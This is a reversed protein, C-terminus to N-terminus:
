HHVSIFFATPDIYYWKIYWPCRLKTDYYKIIHVNLGTIQHHPSTQYDSGRAKKIANYVQETTLLGIGFLNKTDISHRELDHEFHGKKLCDLVKAKEDRFGM